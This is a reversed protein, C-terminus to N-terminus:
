KGRRENDFDFTTEINTYGLVEENARPQSIPISYPYQDGNKTEVKDQALRIALVRKNYSM